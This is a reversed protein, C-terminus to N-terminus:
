CSLAQAAGGASDDDVCFVEVMEGVIRRGLGGVEARAVVEFVDVLKKEFVVAEDGVAVSRLDAYASVVGDAAEATYGPLEARRGVM